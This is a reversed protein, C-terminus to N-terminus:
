KKKNKTLFASLFLLIAIVMIGLIGARSEIIKGKTEAIELIYAALLILTSVVVFMKMLNANM